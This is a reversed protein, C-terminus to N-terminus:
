ETLCSIAYGGDGRGKEAAIMCLGADPTWPPGAENLLSAPKSPHL